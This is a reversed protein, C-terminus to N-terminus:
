IHFSPRQSCCRVDNTDTEHKVIKRPRGKKVAKVEGGDCRGRAGGTSGVTSMATSGRREFVPVDYLDSTSAAISSNSAELCGPSWHRTGCETPSWNDSRYQTDGGAPSTYGGHPIGCAAPSWYGGCPSGLSHSSSTAMAPYPSSSSVALLSGFSSKVDDVDEPARHPPPPTGSDTTVHNIDVIDDFVFHNCDLDPLYEDLVDPSPQPSPGAAAAEVGFDVLDDPNIDDLSTCDGQM